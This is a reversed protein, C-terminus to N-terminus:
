LGAGLNPDDIPTLDVNILFVCIHNQNARDFLVQYGASRYPMM